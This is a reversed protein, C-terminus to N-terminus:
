SGECVCGVGGRAADLEGRLRANEAQLAEVAETYREIDEDPEFELGLARSIEQHLQVWQTAVHELHYSLDKVSGGAGSDAEPQQLQELKDKGAAEALLYTHFGDKFAVVRSNDTITYRWDSFLGTVFLEKM